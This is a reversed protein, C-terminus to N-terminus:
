SLGRISNCLQLLLAASKEWGFRDLCDKAPAVPQDLLSDLDVDYDDPAIYYASEGYIEPMCSTNSVVIKAGCALAEMPPIGFGEYFSPFLFARCNTMLSKVEEDTIYGLQIVNEAKIHENNQWEEITGAILFLRDPYKHAMMEIWHFNKQKRNASLSFYYEGRKVDPYKAMWSDDAEIGLIHQWADPIIAIDERRRGYIREMDWRSNESVTAPYESRKVSTKLNLLLVKGTLFGMSKAIDPFLAPMVDHVVAIGKPYLFPVITCLFIGVRRNMLLYFPLATQEWILGPMRGYEVVKINKYKLSKRCSAPVLVEFMGQHDVKDLEDLIEKIYRQVGGTQGVLQRGDITFVIDTGRKINRVM